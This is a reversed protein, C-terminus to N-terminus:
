KVQIPNDRSLILLCQVHSSLEVGKIGLHTEGIPYSSILELVPKCDWLCISLIHVNYICACIYRFFYIPVSMFVGGFTMFKAVSTLGHLFFIVKLEVGLNQYPSTSSWKPVSM